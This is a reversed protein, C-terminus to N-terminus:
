VDCGKRWWFVSLTFTISEIDPPDPCARRGKVQAITPYYIKTAKVEFMFDITCISSKSSPMVYGNRQCAKYLEKKKRVVESLQIKSIM